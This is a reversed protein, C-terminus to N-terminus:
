KIKIRMDDVAYSCYLTGKEKGKYFLSSQKRFLIDLSYEKYGKKEFDKLPIVVRKNKVAIKVKSVGADLSAMRAGSEMAFIEIWADYDRVDKDIELILSDNKVVAPRIIDFFESKFSVSVSDRKGGLVFKEGPGFRMDASFVLKLIHEGEFELPEAKVKTFTVSGYRELLVLKDDLYAIGPFMFMLKKEQDEAHYYYQIRGNQLTDVHFNLILKVNDNLLFRKLQNDKHHCSSSLCLVVFFSWLFFSQRGSAHVKEFAERNFGKVDKLENILAAPLEM